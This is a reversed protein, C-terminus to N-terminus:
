DPPSAAASREALLALSARMQAYAQNGILSAWEIELAAIREHVAEVADDGALTRVVVRRRKDSPDTEVAIHGTTILQNVFQGVAQKTMPLKAALETITSGGARTAELLRYHSPRLGHGDPNLAARSAQLLGIMLNVIHTSEPAAQPNVEIM